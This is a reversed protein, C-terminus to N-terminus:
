EKPFLLKSGIYNVIVVVISILIKMLNGNFSLTDVTLFIFLLEMIGSGIRCGIFKMLESGLVKMSWNKSHFVFAKNTVFAFAVSAAWAILAALTGSFGFSNHLPYYVAWNVLTTLVGFVLYIIIQRHKVLM